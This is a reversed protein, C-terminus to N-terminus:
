ARVRYTDPIQDNPHWPEGNDVAAVIDTSLTECTRLTTKSYSTLGHGSHASRTM